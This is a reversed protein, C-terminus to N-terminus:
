REIPPVAMSARALAEPRGLWRDFPRLCFRYTYERVPILFQRHPWAGWSNDGGVGQQMLDLNLVTIDRKPLQHPHSPGQLDDATYHLANVSLLPQAVALLGIGNRNSLAVWRVDVKNGSEGPETYDWCFQETVTGRYLGVRADKRDCYTEHPGRGLWEIREFGPPLIMRMGLRPIYPLDTKAPIFRASVAIDGRGYVTYTTEWTAEVAPLETVITVAAARSRPYSGVRVSKVKAGEHAKRWIGQDRVMGRGRDNDTPARWFDPRLPEHILETKKYRWSALTGAQKDFVAEFNSGKIVVKTESENVDLGPMASPDLGQPPAYDPLRFQDWAVEHGKRAWPTDAKLRFSLDLFYEVGPRVKIPRVPIAIEATARPALDPGPLVGQQLLRGEATVSWHLEVVDRLNLFDFWNKVEITPKALDLPRCHIYQYIHKVEYLGPHPRRDPSVLGNCCFNDDSPTGRPGFDGGFAWFYPQGKKVPEFLEGKRGIPQRLAQDVWDWIFGGQLHPKSYIQEWYLWMNGSSNGMAHSYECMIYPRTQTQSAYRALSDPSPYMPCVIDTHPRLEAREYHVPRSPDRKHIWASTAEFNPGDGGENGLSWIVVSPHNKDREVMRITRDMHADLWVPDKALSREGYGMGHSEINAEDILYIGYRDCLDYWAPQNPYHCTRVANINFQKMLRIDKIMGEVTIAQGRDPDIEHRNVGKFLVKQGNVLLHGGRIEVERFGVNVPIVELVRGKQDSLVLLLKYLHPTEATWKLPNTVYTSISIQSESGAPVSIKMDPAVVLKGTPSLLRAEVMGLAETDATNQVQLKVTLEADRYDPDLDARVEFDRIHVSGPSWIYVDRFIGSLRWFDQDELYSGDCWRLNEVAILNTGPRVFPTIDFEVPTRSDKGMGVKQGNVWLYFFSNVGDFTILVRRGAWEKPLEFTRRYYNITNNRDDEPVYPPRWPRRWPYSVNVYIPVGHGHIEVNSPVPILGWDRDNFDTQWFDAIRETHNKAYRYKWQGNLSRYFSSRVRQDNAAYEIRMATAVDPCIVMTAHPPLNNVGTLRPNAWDPPANPEQAIGICSIYVSGIFALVLGSSARIGDM